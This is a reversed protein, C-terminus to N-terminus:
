NTCSNGSVYNAVVAQGLSVGGDNCPVLRQQFVEFGDKRLAALAMKLLLRNQFVGGSLAVRKMGTDNSILKCMAAIMHAMTIHFKMAIVPVPIKSRIDRVVSEVLVALRISRIGDKESIDFGYPELCPIDEGATMELAKMELEMAAQAEYEITERIGLLASIGDFLRGASSTRPSNFGRLLQQQIIEYERAYKAAPLGTLDFDRGLLEFIYGLAMRYPKRVAESGGPMPVYQIHGRRSFGKFDSVLFEGGWIAGDTGYGTGDFAVGIVPGKVRNEVMCSAIHAHHHQVAILKLNRKRCAAKAYRTSPYDPHLDCAIIEPDIQFLAQYSDISKEFHVFTKENSLEGIHPSLFAHSNRSLCFTNKEEAGCALIRKSRFPLFVPYPAYGRARRVVRPEGDSVLAVSDDSRAHIERNHLLFYDAINSLRELAEENDVLLPEGSINGSTMVLPKKTEKLLLHHLPTYPLMIGLRNLNPAVRSCINSTNGSRELLVIPSQRSTLLEAEASSVRCHKKATELSDLMLALPKAPRHKRGRLLEVVNENEADCALQFGGLGRIALINGSRLKEAAKKIANDFLVTAGNRGTLWLFPGCSPCANPQAHFRRDLPDGYERRCDACMSFRRMTTGPRDYPIEEIISYRPGCATCNTFPYQFRRDGPDSIEERCLGCMAIDPSVLRSGNGSKRSKIIEFGGYGKPPHHTVKMKEIYAIKPARNQLGKLFSDLNSERGEVEIDVSGSRNRVWGKLDYEGALSHVLPRFGVGQVVGYVTITASVVM